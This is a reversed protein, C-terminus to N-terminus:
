GADALLRVAPDVADLNSEFPDLIAELLDALSMATSEAVVVTKDAAKAGTCGLTVHWGTGTQVLYQSRESLGGLVRCQPSEFSEEIM